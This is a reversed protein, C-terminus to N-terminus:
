EGGRFKEEIRNAGNEIPGSIEHDFILNQV